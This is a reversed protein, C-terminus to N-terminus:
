VSVWLDSQNTRPSLAYPRLSQERCLATHQISHRPRRHLRKTSTLRNWHITIRVFMTPSILLGRPYVFTSAAIFSDRGGVLWSHAHCGTQSGSLFLPSRSLCPGLRDCASM